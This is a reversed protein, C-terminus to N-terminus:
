FPLDDDDDSNFPISSRRSNSNNGLMVVDMKDSLFKKIKNQITHYSISFCNRTSCYVFREGDKEFVKLKTLCEPCWGNPNGADICTKCCSYCKTCIYFNNPCQIDIDRSDIHEYCSGEICHNIYVGKAHESCNNDGCKFVTVRYAADRDRREVQGTDYNTEFYEVRAYKFDPIMIKQCTRCHILDFIERIRNFFGALKIPFEKPQPKGVELYKIGYHHFWDYINYTLFHKETDPLIQPRYCKHRRCLFENIKKWYFAECSLGGMTDCSPFLKNVAEDDRPDILDKAMAMWIRHEFIKYTTNEDNGSLLLPFINGLIFYDIKTQLSTSNNYIHGAEINKEHLLSKFRLEEQLERLIHNTLIENDNSLFIDVTDNLYIPCEDSSEDTLKENIVSYITSHYSNIHEDDTIINSLILATIIEKPLSDINTDIFDKQKQGTLEDIFQYISDDQQNALEHPVLDLPLGNKLISKIKKRGMLLKFIEYHNETGKISEYISLNDNSEKKLLKFFASHDDINEFCYNIYNPNAIFSKAKFVKNNILISIEEENLDDLVLSAIEEPSSSSRNVSAELEDKILDAIKKHSLFKSVNESRLISRAKINSYNESTFQILNESLEGKESIYMDIYSFFNKSLFTKIVDLLDSEDSHALYSPHLIGKVSNEFTSSSFFDLYNEKNSNYINLLLNLDSAGLFANVASKRDGDVKLEFIVIDNEKLNSKKTVATKHVYIDESTMSQIFGFDNERQRQRIFGGFWKVIGIQYNNLEPKITM